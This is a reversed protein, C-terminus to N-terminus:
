EVSYRGSAVLTVAEDGTYVGVQYQGPEWGADPALWVYGRDDGPVVPYRQFLLIAPDDRRYWKVMVADHDRDGTPFVAYIRPTDPPFSAAASAAGPDPRTAFVVRSADAADAAPEVIDAMAIEALRASFARVDRVADLEDDGLHVTSALVARLEDDSLTSIARELMEPGGAERVDALLAELGRVRAALRLAALREAVLSEALAVDRGAAVEAVPPDPLADASPAGSVSARGLGAGVVIGVVLGVLAQRGRLRGSPARLAACGLSAM